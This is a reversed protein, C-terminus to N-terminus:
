QPAPTRRQRMPYPPNGGSAGPFGPPSSMGGPQFIGRAPMGPTPPAKGAFPGPPAGSPPPKAGAAV